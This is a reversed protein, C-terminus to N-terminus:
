PSGYLPAISAKQNIKGYGIQETDSELPALVESVTPSHKGREIWAAHLLM